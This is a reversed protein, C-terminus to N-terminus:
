VKVWKKDESKILSVLSVIFVFALTWSIHSMGSLWFWIVGLISLIMLIRFYKKGVVLEDRALWSILFGTPIALLLIFIKLLM